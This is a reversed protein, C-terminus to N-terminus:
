FGQTSFRMSEEVRLRKGCDCPFLCVLFKPWSVTFTAECRPCKVETKQNFRPDQLDVPLLDRNFSIVTNQGANESRRFWSDM